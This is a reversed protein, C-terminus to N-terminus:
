RTIAQAQDLERSIARTETPLANHRPRLNISQNFTDALRQWPMAIEFARNSGNAGFEVEEGGPKCSIQGALDVFGGGDNGALEFLDLYEV